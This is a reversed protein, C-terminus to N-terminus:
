EVAERLVEEVFPLVTQAMRRHGLANPHIGDPLNLEPRGGVGELLFPILPAELEDALRPYLGALERAAEPGYSPPIQIGALLVETGAARAALVIRRLNEETAELPQGRLADNAGLAVVLLDPQQRLLWPLRSLGGASTDGSVGANVVRIPRGRAAMMGELLAPYAEEEPLGLGATLSDGLFVVLPLESPESPSKPPAAGPSQLPAAAQPEPSLDDRPEQQSPECAVLSLLSFGLALASIVSCRPDCFAM